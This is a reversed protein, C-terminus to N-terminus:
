EAPAALPAVPKLIFCSTRVEHRNILFLSWANSDYESTELRAVTGERKAHFQM